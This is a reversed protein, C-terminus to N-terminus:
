KLIREEQPFIGGFFRPRLRDDEEVEARSFELLSMSLNRFKLPLLHSIVVVNSKSAEPNRSVIKVIVHIRIKHQRTFTSLIAGLLVDIDAAGAIVRAAMQCSTASLTTAARSACAALMAFVSLVFLFVQGLSDG